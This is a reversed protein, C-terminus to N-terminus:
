WGWRLGTYLSLAGYAFLPLNSAQRVMHIQLVAQADALAPLTPRYILEASFQYQRLWRRADNELLVNYGQDDRVESSRLTADAKWRSNM